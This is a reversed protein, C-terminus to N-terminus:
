GAAFWGPARTADRYDMQVAPHPGAHGTTHSPIHRQSRGSGSFGREPPTSRARPHRRALRPPNRSVPRRRPWQSLMRQEARSPGPLLGCRGGIATDGIAAGDDPCVRYRRTWARTEGPALRWLGFIEPCFADPTAYLALRALDFDGSLRLRIGDARALVLANSGSPAHTQPCPLYSAARLPTAPWLARGDTVLWAPLPEVIAFAPELRVPCSAPAAFWNHNYPEVLLALRGTNALRYAIALTHGGPELRFEKTYLYGWGNTSEFRQEGRLSAADRHTARSAALRSVPYRRWFAYPGDDDRVLEGVGVKLFAQGRAANTFGPPPVPQINFEDILGDGALLQCGRWTLSTVSGLTDFRPCADRTVTPLTVRAELDGMRLVVEDGAAAAALSAAAALPVHRRRWRRNSKM